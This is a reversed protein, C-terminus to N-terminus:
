DQRCTITSISRLGFTLLVSKNFLTDATLCLVIGVAQETFEPLEQATKGPLGTSHQMFLTNLANM